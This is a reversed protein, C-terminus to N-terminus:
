KGKALLRRRESRAKRALPHDPHRAIFLDYAAVSAKARAASLEEQIAINGDRAPPVPSAPMATGLLGAAVLGLM